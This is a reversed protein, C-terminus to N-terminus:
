TPDTSLEIRNGCPDYVYVSYSPGNGHMRINEVKYSMAYGGGAAPLASSFRPWRPWSNWGRPPGRWPWSNSVRCRPVEGVIAATTRWTTVRTLSPLLPPTEPLVLLSMPQM